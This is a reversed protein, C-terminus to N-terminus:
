AVLKMYQRAISEGDFEKLGAYGAEVIQDHKEDRNLVDILEAADQAYLCNHNEKMVDSDGIGWDRNLVLVCGADWGELFTYQSGGGDKKIASMDVMYKSPNLIKFVEGFRGRFRGYYNRRWRRDIQDLKHFGYLRNEAGFIKIERKLSKNAEIIIDTHKDFDIRSTAVALETKPTPNDNFRLYPHKVYTSGIGAEALNKVNVERITIPKAGSEQVTELLEGKMETPDHIVINAGNALLARTETAYNKDSATVITPFQEAMSQATRLDINQYKVGDCFPRQNSETKKSIKFLFVQCGVRHLSRYLHSTFTV